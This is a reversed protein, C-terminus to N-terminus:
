HNSVEDEKVENSVEEEGMTADDAKEETSDGSMADESHKEADHGAAHDGESKAHDNHETGAAKDTSETKSSDAEGACSAFAMMAASALLIFVKKM